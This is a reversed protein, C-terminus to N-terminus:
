DAYVIMGARVRAAGSRIDNLEDGPFFSSLARERSEPTHLEWLEQVGSPGGRWTSPGQTAALYASGQLTPAVSSNPDPRWWSPTTRVVTGPPYGGQGVQLEIRRQGASQPIPDDITGLIQTNRSMGESAGSQGTSAYIQFRGMSGQAQSREGSSSEAVESGIDPAPSGMDADPAVPSAVM